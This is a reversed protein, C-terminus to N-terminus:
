KTANTKQDGLSLTTIELTDYIFLFTTKAINKQLGYHELVKYNHCNGMHKNKIM